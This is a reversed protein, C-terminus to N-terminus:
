APRLLLRWDNGVRRQEVVHLHHRAAMDPLPPLALLPRAGDGLLVPAVYLLLEDALSQEVLTGCLVPGAEVQLENVHRDALMGLAAALDLRCNTDIPLEALEVRVYRGDTPKMGPAHLVLTPASGD